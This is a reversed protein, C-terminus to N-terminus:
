GREGREYGVDAPLPPPAVDQLCRGAYLINGGNGSPDPVFRRTDIAYGQLCLAHAQVADAIWYRRLQEASGDDNATMVTNTRAAYLFSAPGTASFSEVRAQEACGALSFLCLLVLARM